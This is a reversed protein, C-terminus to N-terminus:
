GPPRRLVRRARRAVARAGAAIGEERIVAGAALLKEAGTKARFYRVNAPIPVQPPPERGAMEYWFDRFIERQRAHVKAYRLRRGWATAPAVMRWRRYAPPVITGLVFEWRRAISEAGFERGRDRGNEIMRRVLDGDEVLQELAEIAERASRVEVYDLESRRLDQYAPEPGLLAVCGALWANTLKSAPKTALVEASRTRVALVADVDRYDWWREARIEFDIGLRSLEARFRADGFEPDLNMAFGHFSVRTIGVGRAADRPALAPQPWLPVYSVDAGTVQRPNQVILHDYILVPARDARIVALFADAGDHTRVLTDEHMVCIRGRVPRDALDVDWGRRKLVLYTGITWCDHGELLRDSLEDPSPPMHRGRIDSWADLEHHVFYITPM